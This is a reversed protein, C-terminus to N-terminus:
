IGGGGGRLGGRKGEGPPKKFPKVGGKGVMCGEKVPSGCGAM